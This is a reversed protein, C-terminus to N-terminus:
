GRASKKMAIIEACAAEAQGISAAIDKPAECAGIVFINKRQADSLGKAKKIGFFGYEDSAVGLRDAVLPSDDPPRMGISLVVLDYEDQRVAGKEQDEYKILANGSSDRLIEAPRARIFKIDKMGERYFATFNKGFNQLDMYFFTIQSDPNAHKIKRAARMAYACCVTSCYNTDEPRRHIEESRSGVCQIFAIRKPVQGDSPRVIRRTAALQREAELGTIVNPVAKYGYVSQIGPDFPQFGTAVIVADVSLAIQCPKEEFHIAGFPCANACKVCKKGKVRLCKSMEVLPKGGYIGPYPQYICKAPCVALCAGCATCLEHNVYRPNGVLKAQYATNNGAGGDLGVLQSETLVHTKKNVLASRFIDHAVCVNCKLCVDAAKCGFEAAHGGIYPKREVLWSEVGHEALKNAACVGAVGGGIILVKMSGSAVM